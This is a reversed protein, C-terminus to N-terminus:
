GELLRTVMQENAFKRILSFNAGTPGMKEILSEDISRPPLQYPLTVYSLLSDPLVDRIHQLDDGERILSKLTQMLLKSELTTVQMKQHFLQAEGSLKPHIQQRKLLRHESKAVGPHAYFTGGYLFGYFRNDNGHLEVNKACLRRQEKDLKATRGQILYAHIQNYIENAKDPTLM